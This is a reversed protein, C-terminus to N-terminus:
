TQCLQASSSNNERTQNNIKCVQLFRHWYQLPSPPTEEEQLDKTSQRLILVSEDERGKEGHGKGGELDLTVNQNLNPNPQDHGEEIDEEDPAVHTLELTVEVDWGDVGTAHVIKVIGLVRGGVHGHEVLLDWDGDHVVVLARCIKYL